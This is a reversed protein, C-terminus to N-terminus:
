YSIFNIEKRLKAYTISLIVEKHHIENSSDGSSRQTFGYSLNKENYNTCKM